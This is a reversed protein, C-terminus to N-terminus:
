QIKGLDDLANYADTEKKEEEDKVKVEEEKRKDEEEQRAKREEPTLNSLNKSPDEEKLLPLTERHKLYSEVLQAIYSENTVNLNDSKCLRMFYEFPLDKL